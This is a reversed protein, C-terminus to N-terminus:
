FNWLGRIFKIYSAKSFSKGQNIRLYDLALKEAVPYVSNNDDWYGLHSLPSGGSLIGGVETVYDYDVAKKYHPNLNRLPFGIVDEDDLINIWVGEPRKVQAPYISNVPDGYMLTWLAIPSGLTFLNTAKFNDRNDYLYNSLVVSGLSHAVFTFEFTEGDFESRVAAIENHIEEHLADYVPQGTQSRQYAIADGAFSVMFKRLKVMDLDHNRNVRNCLSAQAKSTHHAWYVERYVIGLGSLSSDRRRVRELTAEDIRRECKRSYGPLQEGIGHIFIVSQITM